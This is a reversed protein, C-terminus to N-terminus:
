ALSKQMIRRIKRMKFAQRQGALKRQHHRTCLCCEYLIHKDTRAIEHWCHTRGPSDYHHGPETTKILMRSRM